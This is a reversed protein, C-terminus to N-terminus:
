IYYSMQTLRDISPTRRPCNTLQDKFISSFSEYPLKTCEMQCILDYIGACDGITATRYM